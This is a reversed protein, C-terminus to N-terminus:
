RGVLVALTLTRRGSIGPESHKAQLVLGRLTDIVTVTDPNSTASTPQGILSATSVKKALAQVKAPLQKRVEAERVPYACSEPAVKVPSTIVGAEVVEVAPRVRGCPTAGVEGTLPSIQVVM